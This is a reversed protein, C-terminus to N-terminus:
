GRNKDKSIEITCIDCSSCLMLNTPFLLQLTNMVRQNLIYEQRHIILQRPVLQIVTGILIDEYSWDKIQLEKIFEQICWTTIDREQENLIIMSGDKHGVVHLTQMESPQTSLFIQLLEIFRVYEQQVKWHQIWHELINRLYEKYPAMRFKIFGELNFNKSEELCDLLNSLLQKQAEQQLEQHIPSRPVGLIRKVEKFIEQKEIHSLFTCEKEIMEQLLHYQITSQIVKLIGECVHIRIKEGLFRDYFKLFIHDEVDYSFYTVKDTKLIQCKPIFIPSSLQNLQEKVKDELEKAYLYTSITAVNLAKGGQSM